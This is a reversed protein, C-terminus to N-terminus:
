ASLELQAQAKNLIAKLHQSHHRAWVAIGAADAENHNKIPIRRLRCHEVVKKKAEDSPLRGMGKGLFKSKWTAPHVCEWPLKFDICCQRIQGQLDRLKLQGPNVTFSGDQQGWMDKKGSSKYSKINTLATEWCVMVPRHKVLIKKISLGFHEFVQEDSLGKQYSSKFSGAIIASEPKTIDWAVWGTCAISQDFAVIIM